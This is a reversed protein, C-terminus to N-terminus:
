STTPNQKDTRRRRAGMEVTKPRKFCALAGHAKQELGLADFETIIESCLCQEAERRSLNLESLNDPKTQCNM